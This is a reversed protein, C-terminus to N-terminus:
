RHPASRRGRGPSRALRNRRSRRQGISGNQKGQAGGTMARLPVLPYPQDGQQAILTSLLSTIQEIGTATGDLQGRVQTFGTRMETQLDTLDSRMANFSATTAQRFGRIDRRAETLDRDNAAALHRAAAADERAAQAEGALEGVRAELAAVRAELESPHAMDASYLSASRL